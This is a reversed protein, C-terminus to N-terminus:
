EDTLEDEGRKYIKRGVVEGLDEDLVLEVGKKKKKKGKKKEEDDEEAAGAAQFIKPKMKFLEDLSVGDKANEDEEEEAIAKKAEKKVTAPEAEIPIAEAPVSEMVPTAPVEVVPESTPEPEPFKVAALQEEINQMAKPGVGPLGLVKNADLKM